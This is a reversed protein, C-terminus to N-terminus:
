VAKRYWVKLYPRNELNEAAGSYFQVSEMGGDDQHVLSTNGAQNAHLLAGLDAGSALLQWAGSSGSGDGLSLGSYDTGKLGCGPSGWAQSAAFQEWTAEALVVPRLVGHCSYLPGVKTTAPSLAWLEAYDITAGAPLGLPGAQWLIRAPQAGTRITLYVLDDGEPVPDLPFDPRAADIWAASLIGDGAIFTRVIGRSSFVLVSMGEGVPPQVSVIEFEEGDAALLIEGESLLDGVSSDVTGHLSRGRIGLATMSPEDLIVRVIPADAARTMPVTLGADPNTFMSRDEPVRM